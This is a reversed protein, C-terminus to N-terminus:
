HRGAVDLVATTRKLTRLVIWVVFGAGLIITRGTGFVVNEGVSMDGIVELAFFVATMAFFGGYERRLVARWSFPLGPRRWLRPNPIFSPTREAWLTFREGFRERLFAEEACMIREYYLWFALVFLALLWWQHPFLAVGAWMFFNGLYLPHRVISYMGETNLVEAEQGATSRGSTGAPAYGVALARIVLGFCSVGLCWTEWLINLAESGGVYTFERMQVVVLALFLLPLYSRWRFLWRGQREFAERL